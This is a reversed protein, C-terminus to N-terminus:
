RKTYIKKKGRIVLQIPNKKDMAFADLEAEAAARSLQTMKAYQKITLYKNTKLYAMAMALREKRNFRNSIYHLMDPKVVVTVIRNSPYYCYHRWHQANVAGCILLMVLILMGVKEKITTHFLWAVKVRKAVCSQGRQNCYSQGKQGFDCQGSLKGITM